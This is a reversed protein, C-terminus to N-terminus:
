KVASDIFRLRQPESYGYPCLRGGPRSCWEFEGNTRLPAGCEPCRRGHIPWTPGKGPPRPRETKM